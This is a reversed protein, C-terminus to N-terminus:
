CKVCQHHKCMIILEFLKGGIPRVTIVIKILFQFVLRNLVKSKEILM